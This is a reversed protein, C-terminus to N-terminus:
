LLETFNDSLNAEAKTYGTIEEMKQNFIFFTGTEDSLTIGEDVVSIVTDLQQQRRALENEALKQETIDRALAQFGVVANKEILLQVNQGLIIKEGTKKQSTFEYYTNLTKSLIQKMYFRKVTERDEEAIIDTYHIGSIEKETYGFMRLGVPNVYVFNGRADTRYICDTANEIFQRHREESEALKNRSERQESVDIFVVMGYQLMNEANCIPVGTIFLPVVEEGRQLEADSIVTREGRLTRYIALEEKPYIENTGSKVLPFLESFNGTLIKIDTELGLINKAEKNAFFPKGDATLIFIGAPVADLFDLLRQASDYVEKEANRRKAIEKKVQVFVILLLSVSAIGGIIIVLIMQFARRQMMETRRKLEAKKEEDLTSSLTKITHLYNQSQFSPFVREASDIGASQVLAIKNDNFYKRQQITEQIERVQNQYREDSFIRRISDVIATLKEERQIYSTLFASDKAAYYTRADTQSLLTESTLEGLYERAQYSDLILEYSESLRLITIFTFYGIVTLLVLAGIYTFNNKQAKSFVTQFIKKSSM